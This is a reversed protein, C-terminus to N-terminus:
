RHLLHPKSGQTLFIGRLPFPLGSWYEQRSFGMSLPAQRAVTWPTVLTLCAKYLLCCCINITYNYVPLFILHASITFTNCTPQTTWPFLTIPLSPQKTLLLCLPSSPLNPSHGERQSVNTTFTNLLCAPLLSMTRCSTLIRTHMHVRTNYVHM